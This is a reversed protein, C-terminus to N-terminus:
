GPLAIQPPQCMCGSGCACGGNALVVVGGGSVGQLSWFGEGYYGVPFAQYLPEQPVWCPRVTVTCLGFQRGTAAWIVRSAVRDAYAQVAPDYTAWAPCLAHNPVWGACPEDAM